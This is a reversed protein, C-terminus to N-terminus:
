HACTQDRSPRSEARDVRRKTALQAISVIQLGSLLKRAAIRFRFATTDEPYAKTKTSAGAHTKARDTFDHGQAPEITATM